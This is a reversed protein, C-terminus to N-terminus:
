KTSQKEKVAKLAAINQVGENANSLTATNRKRAASVTRMDDARKDSVNYFSPNKMTKKLTYGMQGEKLLGACAVSAMHEESVHRSFMQQGLEQPTLHNLQPIFPANEKVARKIAETGDKFHDPSLPDKERKIDAEIAKSIAAVRNGEYDKMGQKYAKLVPNSMAKLKDAPSMMEETRFMFEAAAAEAAAECLRKEQMLQAPSRLYETEAKYKVPDGGTYEAGKAIQNQVQAQKVFQAAMEYPSQNISVMIRKSTASGKVSHLESFAILPKEEPNKSTLLAKTPPYAMLIDFMEKAKKEIKDRNPSAKDFKIRVANKGLENTSGFNAYIHGGQKFRLDTAFPARPKPMLLNKLADKKQEAAQKIRNMLSSPSSMLDNFDQLGGWIRNDTQVLLKGPGKAKGLTKMSFAGLSTRVNIKDFAEQTMWGSKIMKEKSSMLMRAVGSTVYNVKPKKVAETAKDLYDESILDRAHHKLAAKMDLQGSSLWTKSFFEIDAAAKQKKEETGYQMYAANKSILKKILYKEVSVYSNEYYRATGMDSSYGEIAAVVAKDTNKSKAMEKTYARLTSDSLLSSAFTMPAREKMRYLFAAEATSATAECLRLETMKEILGLNEDSYEKDLHQKHHHFEHVFVSAAKYGSGVAKGMAIRGPDGPACYAGANGTNERMLIPRKDKPVADFAALTVPDEICHSLTKALIKVDKEKGSEIEAYFIQDPKDGYQLIYGNEVDPNKRYTVERKPLLEQPHLAEEAEQGKSLVDNLKPKPAPQSQAQRVAEGQPQSQRIAEGQPQSQRIAEGQPQSQRIAEGQPQRIAQEAGRGTATQRVSEMTKEQQMIRMQEACAKAMEKPPLDANIVIRDVPNKDNKAFAAANTALGTAFSFVPKDNVDKSTLMKKTEDSAMLYDFMKKAKSEIMDRKKDRLDYALRVVENGTKNYPTASFNAFPVGKGFSLRTAYPVDPKMGAWQKLSAIKEEANTKVANLFTKPELLADNLRVLSGWIRSDAVLFQRGAIKANALKDFSFTGLVTKVHIQKMQEESLLGTKILTDKNKMIARAMGSTIFSVKPGAVVQTAQDLYKEPILDRAHHKLTDRLNGQDVKFFSEAADNLNQAAELRKNETGYVAFPAYARVTKNFALKDRGSYYEEYARATLLDKSYGQIAAIAAKGPDKSRSMEATYSQLATVQPLSSAFTLPARKRMRYLFGAEATTATAECLRDSIIEEVSSQRSPDYEKDLHQKHHHFEHVFVSASRYGSGTMLTGMVIRGPEGPACYAAANGTYERSLVPRKEPPVSDFAALTVPDEVCHALMGALKKVSAEKKATAYFIQDPRDGYQLIYGNEVDPNKRYTVERKPLLEQPHLAEEAEQGKSLVDNLKPKPAPQSQAQRVAEGQPQSQRIAEGQQQRIAQEAGRGTATQRVSEMTETKETKVTEPAAEKPAPTKASVNETRVTQAQKTQTSTKEFSLAKEDARQLVALDKQGEPTRAYAAVAKAYAEKARISRRDIHQAKLADMAAQTVRQVALAEEQTPKYYTESQNSKSARFAIKNVTRAMDNPTQPRLASQENNLTATKETTKTNNTKESGNEASEKKNASVKKPVMLNGNEAKVMVPKSKIETNPDLQKKMTRLAHIDDFVKQSIMGIGPKKLTKQAIYDEVEKGGFGACAVAAIQADPASRSFMERLAKEKGMERLLPVVQSEDKNFHAEMRKYTNAFYNSGRPELNKRAASELTAVFAQTDSQTRRLSKKYTRLMPNNLAKIKDPLAMSKENRAVFRTMAADAAADRLMDENMGSFPERLLNKELTYDRLNGNSFTKATENQKVKHLAKVFQAAAEFDSLKPNLYIRAQESSPVHVDKVDPEFSLTLPKDGGYSLLDKRVDEDQMLINFIRTAKGLAKQNEQTDELYNKGTLPEFAITGKSTVAGNSDHSFESGVSIYQKRFFPTACYDKQEARFMGKLATQAEFLMKAPGKSKKADNLSFHGLKTYVSVNKLADAHEADNHRAFLNSASQLVQATKKTIYSFKDSRLKKVANNIGQDSSILSRAHHRLAAEYNLRESGCFNSIVINKHAEFKKSIQEKLEEGAYRDDDFSNVLKKMTDPEHYAEEYCHANELSKAYGMIGALAADEKTAGFLMANTYAQQCPSGLYADAYAKPAKAKMRFLYAQAATEATAECIRREIVNEALSLEKREETRGENDMHQLHHHFEHVFVSAASYKNGVTELLIIEGPEGSCCLGSFNQQDPSSFKETIKLLPRKELPVGSMAKFTEEDEMAHSLIEAMNRAFTENGNMPAIFYDNDNPGFRLRFAGQLEPDDHPEVSIQSKSPVSDKELTDYRNEGNGKGSFLNQLFGAM